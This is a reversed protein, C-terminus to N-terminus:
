VREVCHCSVELIVNHHAAARKACPVRRPVACAASGRSGIRSRERTELRTEQGALIRPWLITSSFDISRATTIGRGVWRATARVALAPARRSSAIYRIASPAACVRVLRLSHPPAAGNCLAFRRAIRHALASTTPRGAASCAPRITVYRRASAVVSGYSRM